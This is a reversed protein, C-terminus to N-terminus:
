LLSKASNISTSSLDNGRLLLIYSLCVTLVILVTARFRMDSQYTLPKLLIGFFASFIKSFQVIWTTCTWMSNKLTSLYGYCVQHHPSLWSSTRFLRPYQIRVSVTSTHCCFWLAYFLLPIQHLDVENKTADCYIQRSLSCVLECFGGGFSKWRIFM